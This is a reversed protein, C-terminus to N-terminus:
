YIIAAHERELELEELMTCIYISMKAAGCVAVFGAETSSLTITIQHKSFYTICAGAFM